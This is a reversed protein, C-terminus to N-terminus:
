EREKSVVTFADRANASLIEQAEVNEMISAGFVLFDYDSPLTFWQNVDMALHVTWHDNEAISLGSEPVAVAAVHSHYFTDSPSHKVKGLHVTWIADESGALYHGEMQIHHYGAGLERPWQMSFNEVTDPLGHEVNRADDVGVYFEIGSYSGAPVGQLTFSLTAPDFADLLFVDNTTYRTGDLRRLKVDSVYHKLRSVRYHNGAANVYSYDTADFRVATTDVRYEFSLTLSGTPAPKSSKDGGCGCTVLATCALLIWLARAPRLRSALSM